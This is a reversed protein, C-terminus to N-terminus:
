DNRMPLLVTITMTPPISNDSPTDITADQIVLDETRKPLVSLVFEYSRHYTTNTDKREVKTKTKTKTKETRLERLLEEVGVFRELLTMDVTDQNPNNKVYNKFFKVVMTALARNTTAWGIDSFIVALREDETLLVWKEITNIYTYPINPYMTNMVTAVAKQSRGLVHRTRTKM